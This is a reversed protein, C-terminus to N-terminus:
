SGVLMMDKIFLCGSKELDNNGKISLSGKTLLFCFSISSDTYSKKLLLILTSTCTSILLRHSKINLCPAVKLINEQLM